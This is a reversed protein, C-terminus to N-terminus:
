KVDKTKKFKKPYKLQIDIILYGIPKVILEFFIEILLCVVLFTTWIIITSTLFSYEGSFFKTLNDM